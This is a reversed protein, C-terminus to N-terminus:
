VYNAIDGCGNKEAKVKFHVQAVIPYYGFFPMRM